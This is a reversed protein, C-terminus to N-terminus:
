LRVEDSCVRSNTEGTYTTWRQWNDTDTAKDEGANVTELVVRLLLDTIPAAGHCRMSHQGPYPGM